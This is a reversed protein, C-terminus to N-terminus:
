EAILIPLQEKENIARELIRWRAYLCVCSFTFREQKIRLKHAFRYILGLSETRKHIVSSSPTGSPPNIKLPFSGLYPVPDILRVEVIACAFKEMRTNKQNGFRFLWGLSGNDRYGVTSGLIAGDGCM